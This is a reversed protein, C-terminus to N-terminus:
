FALALFTATSIGLIITLLVGSDPCVDQDHWHSRLNMAWRM